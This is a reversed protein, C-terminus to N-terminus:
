ENEGETVKLLNKVEVSTSRQKTPIEHSSPRYIITKFDDNQEFDSEQLNNEKTFHLAAEVKELKFSTKEIQDEKSCSFFFLTLFFVKKM